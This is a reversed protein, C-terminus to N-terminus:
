RNGLRLAFDKWKIEFHITGNDTTKEGLITEVEWEEDTSWSTSTCFDSSEDLTQNQIAIDTLEFEGEAIADEFQEQLLSTLVLLTISNDCEQGAAAL